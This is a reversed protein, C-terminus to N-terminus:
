PKELTEAKLKLKLNKMKCGRKVEESRSKRFRMGWPILLSEALTPTICAGAAEICKLSVTTINPVSELLDKVKWEKKHPLFCISGKPYCDDKQITDTFDWVINGQLNKEEWPLVLDILLGLEQFAREQLNEFYEKRNTIITLYNFEELFESLFNDIKYDGDDILVMCIQKKPIKAYRRLYAMCERMYIYPLYFPIRNGSEREYYDWIYELVIQSGFIRAMFRIKRPLKPRTEPRALKLLEKKEM